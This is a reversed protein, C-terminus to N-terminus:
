QKERKAEVKRTQTEPFTVTASSLPLTPNVTTSLLRTKLKGGEEQLIILDNAASSSRRKTVAATSELIAQKGSFRRIRFDRNPFTDGEHLVILEDHHRLVLRKEQPLFRVIHYGNLPDPPEKLNADEAGLPLLCSVLMLVSLGASIRRLLFAHPGVGSLM